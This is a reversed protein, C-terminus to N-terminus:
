TQEDVEPCAFLLGAGVVVIGAAGLTLVNWPQNGKMVRRAFGSTERRFAWGSLADRKCLNKRTNCQFDVEVANIIAPEPASPLPAL